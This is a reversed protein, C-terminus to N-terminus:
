LRTILWKMWRSRGIRSRNSTDVKCVDTTALDPLSRCAKRDDLVVKKVSYAHFKFVNRFDGIWGLKCSARGIFPTERVGVIIQTRDQRECVFIPCDNFNRKVLVVSDGADHMFVLENYQLFGSVSSEFDMIFFISMPYNLSFSFNKTSYIIDCHKVEFKEFPVMACLQEWCSRTASSM